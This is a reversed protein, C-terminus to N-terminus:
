YCVSFSFMATHKSWLITSSFTFFVSSCVFINFIFKNEFLFCALTKCHPKAPQMISTWPEFFASNYEIIENLCSGNLCSCPRLLWENYLVLISWEFCFYFGCVFCRLLLLLCLPPVAERISNSKYYPYFSASPLVFCVCIAM